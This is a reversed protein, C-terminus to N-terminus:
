GNTFGLEITIKEPQNQNLCIGNKSYLLIETDLVIELPDGVWVIIDAEKNINHFNEANVITLLQKVVTM